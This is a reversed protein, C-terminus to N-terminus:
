HPRKCDSYRSILNMESRASESQYVTATLLGRFNDFSLSSLRTVGTLANKQDGDPFIWPSLCFPTFGHLCGVLVGSGLVAALGLRGDGM